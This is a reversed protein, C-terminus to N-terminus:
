AGTLPCGLHFRMLEEINKFLKLSHIPKQNRLENIVHKGIILIKRLQILGSFQTNKYKWVSRAIARFHLCVAQSHFQLM